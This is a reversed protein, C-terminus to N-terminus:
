SKRNELHQPLRQLANKLEPYHVRKIADEFDVLKRERIDSEEWDDLICEIKLVFVDVKVALSRNRQFQYSYVVDSEITGTM